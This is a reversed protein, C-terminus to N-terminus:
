EQLKSAYLLLATEAWGSKLNLNPQIYTEENLCFHEKLWVSLAWIYRGQYKAKRESEYAVCQYFLRVEIDSEFHGRELIDRMCVRGAIRLVAKFEDSFLKDMELLMASFDMKRVRDSALDAKSANLQWIYAAKDGDGELLTKYLSVSKRESTAACVAFSCTLALLCLLKLSFNYNM